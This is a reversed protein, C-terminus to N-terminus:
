NPLADLFEVLSQFYSEPLPENHTGGANEIWRKHECPTLSYLKQGNAYPVVEDATGHIQLLPCDCRLIREDSPYRNRMIWRVPLWPFKDAAVDSMNAFTNQLVLARAGQQEAMAVAVGGGLSRGMLVVDSTEMELKEALWRQAALGDLIIGAEHPSGESKGYGRYDFLFVSADLLSRLYAMYAGNNTIDEGNGHCYVLAHRPQDHAFFWGHLKTGDAAEFFVDTQATESPTWAAPSTTRPRPYVISTELAAMIMCIVVYGFVFPRVRRWLRRPLSPTTPSSDSM